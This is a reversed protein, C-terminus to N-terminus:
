ITIYPRMKDLTKPGIGKVSTLDELRQFNGNKERYVQISQATKPGIGPVQCLAQENATNINIKGLQVQSQNSSADSAAFTFSTPTVFSLTLLLMVFIMKKMETEKIPHHPFAIWIM